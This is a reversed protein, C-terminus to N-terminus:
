THATDKFLASPMRFPFLSVELPVAPSAHREGPPAAPWGRPVGTVSSEPHSVLTLNWSSGENEPFLSWHSGRPGDVRTQAKPPCPQPARRGPRGRAM